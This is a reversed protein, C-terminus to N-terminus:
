VLGYKATEKKINYSKLLFKVYEAVLGLRMSKRANKDVNVMKEIRKLEGKVSDLTNNVDGQAIAHKLYTNIDGMEDAYGHSYMDGENWMMGLEYHDVLFPKGKITEYESFPPEVDTDVGRPVSKDKPAKPMSAEVQQPTQTEIRTRFVTDSM